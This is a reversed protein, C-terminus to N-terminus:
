IFVDFELLHTMPQIFIGSTLYKKKRCLVLEFHSSLEFGARIRARRIKKYLDGEPTELAYFNSIQM